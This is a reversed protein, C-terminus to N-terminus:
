GEGPTIWRYGRKRVSEIPDPAGADKFKRRIRHVLVALMENQADNSIRNMLADIGVVNPSAKMLTWCLDAQQATLPIMQENYTLVGGAGQMRFGALEAPEDAHLDFGCSPCFHKM